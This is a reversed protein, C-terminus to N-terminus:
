ELCIKLVDVGNYISNFSHKQNNKLLGIFYNLQAEYTDIMKQNSKFISRGNEFIENLLLDIYYTAKDTLVELFRKTDLRFYNLQVSATFQGYDLIYNAYDCSKVEISSNNKFYSIKNIPKGFFWYLYDIEHILDLHVGGGMEPLASYNTKYDISPRWNPLFSGAYVRVDNIRINKNLYNKKFYALCDLFRLNCAVYTLRDNFENLRNEIALSNSIPKEIFFPKNLYKLDLLNQEHLFTPTSILIFSFNYKELGSKEYLNVISDEEESFKSRQAFIEVQPNIKRLAAIHKKAISGLGVILVRM